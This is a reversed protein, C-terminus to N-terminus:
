QNKKKKERQFKVQKPIGSPFERQRSCEHLPKQKKLLTHVAIESKLHLKTNLFYRPQDFVCFNSKIEKYVCDKSM